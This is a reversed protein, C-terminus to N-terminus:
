SKKDMKFTCNKILFQKLVTGHQNKWFVKMFRSVGVEPGRRM